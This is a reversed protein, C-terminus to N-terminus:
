SCVHVHVDTVFLDSGKFAFVEFLGWLSLEVSRLIVTASQRM